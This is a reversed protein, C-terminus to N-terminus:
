EFCPKKILTLKNLGSLKSFKNQILSGFGFDIILHVVISICFIFYFIFHCIFINIFDDKENKPNLQSNILKSPIFDTISNVSASEILGHCPFNQNNLTPAATTTM